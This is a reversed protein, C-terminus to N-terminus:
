RWDRGPNWPWYNKRSGGGFRGEFGASLMLNNMSDQAGTDFSYYDVLDFRMSIRTSYRYKFGVGFPLSLAGDHYRNQAADYYNLDLIGMGVTVYPRWRTDGTFYYLWSLDWFWVDVKPLQVAPNAIDTVGADAWGFRTEAGWHPGFDWGTRLSFLTGPNGQLTPIPDAVFFGGISASLSFPRNLWSEQQLQPQRPRNQFHEVVRGPLRRHQPHGHPHPAYYDAPAQPAYSEAPATAQYPNPAAQLLEDGLQEPVPPARDFTPAANPLAVEPLAPAPPEVAQQATLDFRPGAPQEGSVVRLSSGRPEAGACLAVTAIVLIAPSLSRCLSATM